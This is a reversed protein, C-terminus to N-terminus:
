RIQKAPGGVIKVAVFSARGLWIGWLSADGYPARPVSRPDDETTGAGRERHSRCGRPSPNDNHSFTFCLV